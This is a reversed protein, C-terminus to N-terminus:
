PTNPENVTVGSGSVVKVVVVALLAGAIQAYIFRPASAPAIGAFTDSLTRSITVAPNAFSTSSTFWYAGTIYAGVAYAAGTKQGSRVICFIVLLLGFAAVVEGLWIGTGWRIKHSIAVAPLSFMLNGVIVGVMGGGIQALWYALVEGLGMGGM